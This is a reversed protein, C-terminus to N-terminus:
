SAREILPLLDEAESATIQRQREPHLEMGPAYATSRNRGARKSFYLASDAADLLVVADAGDDPWVALGFSASVPRVKQEGRAPPRLEHIARRLKEAVEMASARDQRPLILCFEEGGFRAVTDVRRVNRLLAAAVARLVADGVAHGYSDNLGKFHDIDLMIVAVRDGYRQARRLEMELHSFLHRRNYVGTLPDTLSLAVTQQYLSANALALAAQGAISGVLKIEHTRFADATTRAFLLVGLRQGKHQMPVALVSGTGGGVRTRRQLRVEAHGLALLQAADPPHLGEEQWGPPLTGASAHITLGGQAADVLAVAIGDYDLSSAVLETLRRLLAEVELTSNVARTIEVLLSLERLRLALRENAERVLASRREAREGAGGAWVSLLAGVLLLLFAGLALAPGAAKGALAALLCGPVLVLLLRAAILRM